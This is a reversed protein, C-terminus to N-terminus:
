VVIGYETYKESRDKIQNINILVDDSAEPLDIGMKKFILTERILEIFTPDFNIYLKDTDPHKVLVSAKLAEPLPLKLSAINSNIQAM